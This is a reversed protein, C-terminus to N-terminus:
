LAKVMMKYDYLIPTVYPFLENTDTTVTETYNYDARILKDGNPVEVKDMFIDLIVKDTLKITNDKIFTYYSEDLIAAINYHVEYTYAVDFVNYALLITNPSLVEYASSRLKERHDADYAITMDEIAPNRLYAIGNEFDVSFANRTTDLFEDFGNIYEVYLSEDGLEPTQNFNKLPTRSLEVQTAGRPIYDYIRDIVPDGSADLHLKYIDINEKIGDSDYQLTMIRDNDIDGPEFIEPNITIIIPYTGGLLSKVEESQETDSKTRDGVVIRMINSDDVFYGLGIDRLLEDIDPYETLTIDKITVNLNNYTPFPLPLSYTYVYPRTYGVNIKANRGVSSFPYMLIKFTGPVPKHGLTLTYPQSTPITIYERAYRTFTEQGVSSTDGNIDKYLQIRMGLTTVPQETIISDDLWPQNIYLVESGTENSVDVLEKTFEKSLITYKIGAGETNKQLNTKSSVVVQNAHKRLNFMTTEIDGSSAYTISNIKLDYIGIKYEYQSDSIPLPTSQHFVFNIYRVKRPAFTVAINPNSEWTEGQRKEIKTYNIGDISVYIDELVIPSLAGFNVVSIAVNNVITPTDISVQLELYLGDNDIISNTIKKYVFYSYLDDDIASSLPYDSDEIGNSLPGIKLDAVKLKISTVGSRPLTIIGETVDVFCESGSGTVNLKDKTNFTDTIVEVDAFHSSNYLTFTAMETKAKNINNDIQKKVEDIDNRSTTLNARAQKALEFVDQLGLNIKHMAENIQRHDPMAGSVVFIEELSYKELLSQVFSGYEIAIDEATQLETSKSLYPRRTNFKSVVTNLM